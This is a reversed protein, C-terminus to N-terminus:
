GRLWWPFSPPLSEEMVMKALLPGGVLESVDDLMVVVLSTM